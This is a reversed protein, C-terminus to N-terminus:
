RRLCQKCSFSSNKSPSVLYLCQQQKRPFFMIKALYVFYAVLKGIEHFRCDQRNCTTPLKWSQTASVVIVEQLIFELAKNFCKNFKLHVPIHHPLRRCELGIRPWFYTSLWLFRSGCSM